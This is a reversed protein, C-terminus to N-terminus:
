KKRHGGNKLMQLKTNILFIHYNLKSLGDELAEVRRGFCQLIQDSETVSGPTPMYFDDFIEEKPEQPASVGADIVEFVEPWARKGLIGNEFISNGLIRDLKEDDSDSAFSNISLFLSLLIIIKM